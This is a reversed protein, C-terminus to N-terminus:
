GKFGEEIWMFEYLKPRYSLLAIEPVTRPPNELRLEEAYRVLEKWQLRSASQLTTGREL